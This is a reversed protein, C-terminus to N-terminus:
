GRRLKPEPHGQGGPKCYSEHRQPLSCDKIHGGFEEGEPRMSHSLSGCKWCQGLDENPGEPGRHPRDPCENRPVSGFSALETLEEDTVSEWFAQIEDGYKALLEKRADNM